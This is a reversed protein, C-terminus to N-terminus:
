VWKPQTQFAPFNERKYLFIFQNRYFEQTEFLGEPRPFWFWPLFQVRDSELIWLFTPKWTFIPYNEQIFKISRIQAPKFNLIYRMLLLICSSNFLPKNILPSGALVVVGHIKWPLSFDDTIIKRIPWRWANGMLLGGVCTKLERRNSSLFIIGLPM